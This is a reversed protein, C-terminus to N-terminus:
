RGTVVDYDEEDKLVLVDRRFLEGDKETHVVGKLVIASIDM